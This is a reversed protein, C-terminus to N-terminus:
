QLGMWARYFYSKKSTHRLAALAGLGGIKSSNLHVIDPKEEVSVTACSKYFPWTMFINVDRELYPISLVRVRREELKTQTHRGGTVVIPEYHDKSLNTALDYMIKRGAGIAKPSSM